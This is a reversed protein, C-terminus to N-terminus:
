QLPLYHAPRASHAKPLPTHPGKSHAVQRYYGVPHSHRRYRNRHFRPPVLPQDQLLFPPLHATEPINIAKLFSESGGMRRRVGRRIGHPQLKFGVSNKRSKNLLAKLALARAPSLENTMQGGEEVFNARRNEDLQMTAFLQDNVYMEVKKNLPRLIDRHGYYVHVPTSRVSGDRQEVM